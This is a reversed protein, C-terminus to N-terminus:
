LMGQEELWKGVEKHEAIFKAEVDRIIQKFEPESRITEFLPDNKILTVMWAEQLPRNIFKRLYGLAQERNGGFASMGALDYYVYYNLGDSSKMTEDIMQKKLGFYYEAENKYGNLWYIYGIRHFENKDTFDRVTNLEGVWRRVWKLSEGPQKSYMYYLSFRRNLGYFASDIRYVNKLLNIANIYNGQNDAEYTARYSFYQASDGDLLLAERNFFNGKEPFGAVNYAEALSRLLEPQEIQHNHEVAKQFNEISRVLSSTLFGKLYYAHWDNPNFKIAKDYEEAAKKYNYRHAYYAGRISYAEALQSDHSLAINAFILMSDLNGNLYSVIALGTYGPAFTSDYALSKKFLIEARKAKQRNLAPPETRRVEERGRQYFDYATLNATPIKEIIQKEVPTISAKLEAAISQAIQSQIGLIDKVERIEQEYPKAWIHTEKGDARILQISVSFSNGYRQGSGEVIYNVGLEKAIEPVSKTTNRYQEVSTRSIVRLEKVLQLNNLVKDMIGNIFYQNSDNPSDNIFPLVAISKELKSLDKNFERKHIFNFGLLVIILVASLFTTTKWGGSTPTTKYDIRKAAGLPKTKRIGAPTVDYIWSVFVSIVFGIGLLVIILAETWDPLQLPRAVIDVLQLIAFSIAAYVTIVHIVKRRKLDRWFKEFNGSNQPM